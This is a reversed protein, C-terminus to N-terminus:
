VLLISLTIFFTFVLPLLSGTALTIVLLAVMSVLRTGLAGLSMGSSRVVHSPPAGEPAVPSLVGTGSIPHANVQLLRPTTQANPLSRVAKVSDLLMKSRINDTFLSAAHMGSWFTPRRTTHLSAVGAALPSAMSTGSMTVYSTTSAVGASVINVGPANIVVCAGHNSFSAFEDDSNTAGVAIVGGKSPDTYGAPITMCTEDASNGAAAFISADCLDRLQGLVYAYPAAGPANPDSAGGFSMNVVIGRYAKGGRETTCHQKIALTAAILDTTYGFGECNLARVTFIRAAKNVGVVSGAATAAVHTGHSECIENGEEPFGNWIETARGGFEVHSTMVITDVIYIDAELLPPFFIDPMASNGDLARDVQNIRDLNYRADATARVKEQAGVGDAFYKAQFAKNRVKGGGKTTVKTATATTTTAKTSGGRVKPKAPRETPKKQKTSPGVMDFQIEEEVLISVPQAQAERGKYALMRRQGGTTSRKSGVVENAIRQKLFSETNIDRLFRISMDATMNSPLSDDATTLMKRATKSQKSTSLLQREIHLTSVTYISGHPTMGLSPMFTGISVNAGLEQNMHSTIIELAELQTEHSLGDDGVGQWGVMLALHIQDPNRCTVPTPCLAVGLIILVVVLPTILLRM